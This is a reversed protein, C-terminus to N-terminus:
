VFASKPKTKKKRHCINGIKAITMTNKNVNLNWNADDYMHTNTQTHTNEHNEPIQIGGKYNNENQNLKQKAQHKTNQTWSRINSEAKAHLPPIESIQHNDNSENMWEYMCENMCVKNNTKNEKLIKTRQNQVVKEWYWENM